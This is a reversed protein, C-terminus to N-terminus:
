SLVSHSRRPAPILSGGGRGGAPGARAPAGAEEVLVQSLARLGPGERWLDSTGCGERGGRLPNEMSKPKAYVPLGDEESGTQLPDPDSYITALPAPPAWSPGTSYAFGGPLPRAVGAHGCRGPAELSSSCGWQGWIHWFFCRPKPSLGLASQSGPPRPSWQSCARQDPVWVLSGTRPEHSAPPSLPAPAAQAINESTEDRFAFDKVKPSFIAELCGQAFLRKSSRQDPAPGSPM